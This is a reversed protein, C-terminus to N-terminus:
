RGKVAQRAVDDLFIALTDACVPFAYEKSGHIVILCLIGNREALRM